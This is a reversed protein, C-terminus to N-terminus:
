SFQGGLCDIFGQASLLSIFNWGLSTEALDIISSALAHGPIIAVNLQQGIYPLHKARM